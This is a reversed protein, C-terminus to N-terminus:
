DVEIDNLLALQLVICLLNIMLLVIIVSNKHSERKLFGHHLFKGLNNIVNMDSHQLIYCFLSDDMDISQSSFVDRNVSIDTLFVNREKSLFDCHILMHKEDDLANQKCYKCIRSNAPIPPNCHRGTEILLSHSSTRFRAISTRYLPNSMYLYSEKRWKSKFKCYTRLIPNRISDNIDKMLKQSFLM